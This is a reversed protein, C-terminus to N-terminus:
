PHLNLEPIATIFKAGWQRADRLEQMIEDRINWPLILIYDPKHQLILEPACVEIASGPLRLGIKQPSKDAILPIENETVGCYNLFTVGKAAAGYGMIKKGQSQATTLFALFDDKVKATTAAFKKYTNLDFLGAQKEEKLIDTISTDPRANHRGWIRLSGGHTSLKEAKFIVLGHRAFIQRIAHLSFYFYHEHYITDFQNYKIVNLLHPFECSATARPKLIEAIGAVFSNIDPVHALVNNAIFLDCAMGQKKLKQATDFNFFEALTEVGAKRATDAVNQAPEIGLVNCGSDKFYRLLYGDNSAAEIILSDHGLNLQQTAYAAFERAHNLWTSSYSSFYVYDSFLLEPPVTHALQVLQCNRCAVVQLPFEQPRAKVKSADYLANAPPM